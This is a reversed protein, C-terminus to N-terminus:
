ISSRPAPIEKEEGCRGSRRQPGGLMRVLPYCPAREWTTFSVVWKWRTGLDLVRPAIDGSWWYTKM